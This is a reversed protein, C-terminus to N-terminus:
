HCIHHEIISFISTEQISLLEQKDLNIGVPLMPLPAAKKTDKHPAGHRLEWMGWRHRREWGYTVVMRFKGSDDRLFLGVKAPRHGFVL